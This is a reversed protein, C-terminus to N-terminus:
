DRMVGGTPLHYTELLEDLKDQALAKRRALEDIPIKAGPYHDSTFSARPFHKHLYQALFRGKGQLIGVTSKMWLRM